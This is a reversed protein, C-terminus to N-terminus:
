ILCLMLIFEYFKSYLPVESHLARIYCFERIVLSHQHYEWSKIDRPTKKVRIYCSVRYMYMTMKMTVPDEDFHPEVRNQFVQWNTLTFPYVYVTSCFREQQIQWYRSESRCFICQLRNYLAQIYLCFGPLKAPRQEKSKKLRSTVLYNDYPRSTRKILNWQINREKIFKCM